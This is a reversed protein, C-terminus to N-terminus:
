ENWIQDGIRYIAKTVLYILPVVLLSLVATIVFGFFRDPVTLGLILGFVFNGLQCLVTAGLTCLMCSSFRDQLFVQRLLTSGVGLFTITVMSYVGPATGSFLYLLSAVLAFISGIEAGQMTCIMLILCPVIDPVAGFLEARCLFVDQLLLALICVAAYLSWRALSRRQQRTLLLKGFDGSGEPDPRFDYKKAV